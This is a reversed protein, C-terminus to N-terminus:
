PFPSLEGKRQFTRSWQLDWLMALPVYEVHGDCFALNIGLDRGNNHRAVCYRSMYTPRQGSALSVNLDPPVIDDDFPWSDVWSCDGFLPVRAGAASLSSWFGDPWNANGFYLGAGGHYGYPDIPNYIWGNLGYSGYNTSSSKWTWAHRYDSSFGPSPDRAEPCFRVPDSQTAQSLERAVDDMWLRGAQYERFTFTGRNHLDGIMGLYLQRLNSKCLAIRARRTLISTLPFLLAFLLLIIAVVALLEVLTFGRSRKM